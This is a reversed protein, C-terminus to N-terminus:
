EIKELILDSLRREAKFRYNKRRDMLECKIEEIRAFGM